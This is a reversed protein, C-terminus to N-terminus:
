RLRFKEVHKKGSECDPVSKVVVRNSFDLGPHSSVVPDSQDFSESLPALAKHNGEIM